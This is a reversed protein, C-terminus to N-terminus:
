ARLTSPQPRMRDAIEQAAPAAAAGHALRIESKFGADRDPMQAIDLGALCGAAAVDQQLEGRNEASGRVRTRGV